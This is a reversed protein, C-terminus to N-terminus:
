VNQDFKKLLKGGSASPDAPHAYVNTQNSM